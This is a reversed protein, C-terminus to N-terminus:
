LYDDIVKKTENTKKNKISLIVAHSYYGNHSNYVAYDIDGKSTHINLFCVDSPYYIYEEKLCEMMANSTETDYGLYDAGIYEKVEESTYLYKGWNECCQQDNDIVFYIEEDETEVKIGDFYEYDPKCNLQINYVEEINLIKSM